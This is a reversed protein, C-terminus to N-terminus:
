MRERDMYEKTLKVVVKSLIILSILNPIAMCGNLTDAIEWVLPLEMCAGQILCLLFIAQYVRLMFNGKWLYHICEKAYYYWGIISPIAFSVISIAFVIGGLKGFGESFCAINLAAGLLGSDMYDSTLVVLGTITCVVITDFFVEFIGWFGQEVPHINTVSAHAIPASGMGAENSFIGRTIGYHMAKSIMYGGVGSFMSSINGISTFISSIASSLRDGHLILLYICAVIYIISVFPIMVENIRMIRDNKGLIIWGVIIFLGIGIWFSSIPVYTQLTQAITNAPTLNGIGFSAFICLLAFLIGLFPLHCGYELTTMPGGTYSGDENRMRYHMALVVEAYKIVMGLLASIWMWFLAGPGGMSIATTVGVVSGVGLTGALATSVAQFPTVEDGRSQHFLSGLTKKILLLPHTFPKLRLRMMLFVGTGMLLLLMYKGWVIQNLSNVLLMLREM